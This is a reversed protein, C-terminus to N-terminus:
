DPIEIVLKVITEKDSMMKRMKEPIDKAVLSSKIGLTRPCIYDSKRIVIDTPHTLILDKHGRFTGGIEQDNVIIKFKFEHDSQLRHKLWAPFDKVSKNAGVAIICDGKPTLHQEKTFELTSKHTARINPHGHGIIEFKRKVM